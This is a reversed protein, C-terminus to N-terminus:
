INLLNKLSQLLHLPSITQGFGADIMQQQTLIPTGSGRNAYFDMVAEVDLWVLLGDHTTTDLTNTSEVYTGVDGFPRGDPATDPYNISM